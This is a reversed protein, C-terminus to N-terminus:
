DAPGASVGPPKESFSKNEVRGMSCSFLWFSFTLITRAIGRARRGPRQGIPLWPAIPVVNFRGSLPKHLSTFKKVQKANNIKKNHAMAPNPQYPECVFNLNTQIQPFRTENRGRACCVTIEIRRVESRIEKESQRLKGEDGADLFCSAVTTPARGQMNQGSRRSPCWWASSRRHGADKRDGKSWEFRRRGAIAPTHDPWRRRARRIEVRCKGARGRRCGCARAPASAM